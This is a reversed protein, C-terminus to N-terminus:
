NRGGVSNQTTRYHAATWQTACLQVRSFCSLLLMYEKGSTLYEQGSKVPARCASRHRFTYEQHIRPSLYEGHRGVGGGNQEGKAKKKKKILKNYFTM